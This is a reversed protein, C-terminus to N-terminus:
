ALKSMAWVIIFYALIRILGVAGPGIMSIGFAENLHALMFLGFALGILLAPRNKKGKILGLILIVFCFLFNILAINIAGLACNM